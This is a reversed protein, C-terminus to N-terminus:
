GERVHQDTDNFEGSQLEIFGDIAALEPGRDRQACAAIGRGGEAATSSWVLAADFVGVKGNLPGGYQGGDLPTAELKHCTSIKLSRGAFSHCFYPPEPAMPSNGHAQSKPTVISM